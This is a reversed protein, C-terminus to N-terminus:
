RDFSCVLFTCVCGLISARSRYVRALKRAGEVRSDVYVFIIHVMDHVM